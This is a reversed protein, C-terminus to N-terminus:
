LMVRRSDKRNEKRYVKGSPTNYLICNPRDREIREEAAHFLEPKAAKM